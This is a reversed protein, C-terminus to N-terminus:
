TLQQRKDGSYGIVHSGYQDEIPESIRLHQQIGYLSRTSRDRTGLYSMVHVQAYIKLLYLTTKIEQRKQDEILHSLEDNGLFYQPMKETSFKALLQPRSLEPCGLGMEDEQPECSIRCLERV